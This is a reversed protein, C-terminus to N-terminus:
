RKEIGARDIVETWKIIDGRMQADMAAPTSAKSDIGLDLLRKKVDPEALVEQMAKNLTALIQPPTGAKAYIANWSAAEFGNV